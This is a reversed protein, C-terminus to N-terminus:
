DYNLDKDKVLKVFQSSTTGTVGNEMVYVVKKGGLFHYDDKIIGEVTKGDVKIKIKKIM